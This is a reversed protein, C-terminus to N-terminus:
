ETREKGSLGLYESGAHKIPTSPQPTMHKITHELNQNPPYGTRTYDKITEPEQKHKTNCKVYPTIDRGGEGEERGM